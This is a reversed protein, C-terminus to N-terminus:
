VSVYGHSLNSIITISYSPGDFNHSAMTWEVDRFGTGHCRSLKGNVNQDGLQDEAQCIEMLGQHMFTDLAICAQVTGSPELFILSGSLQLTKLGM